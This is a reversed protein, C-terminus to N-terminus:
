AAVAGHPDPVAAARLDLGRRAATTGAPGDGRGPGGPVGPDAHGAGTRGTRGPVGLDQCGRAHGGSRAPDQGEPARGGPASAPSTSCSAPTSTWTSAWNTRPQPFGNMWCTDM